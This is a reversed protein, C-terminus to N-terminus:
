ALGRRRLGAAVWAAAVIVLWAGNVAIAAPSGELIWGSVIAAVAAEHCWFWATRRQRFVPVLRIIVVVATPYGIVFLAIAFPTSM